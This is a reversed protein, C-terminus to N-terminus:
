QLLMKDIVTKLYSVEEKLNSIQKEYLSKENESMQHIVLGNGTQNHMVNFVMNENFMMIDEPNLGLVKSIEEIRSFPIDVEGAEMKSYGSQSIGLQEAMYDQTLNRLERLKKIKKGILM